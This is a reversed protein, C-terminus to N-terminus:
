GVRTYHQKVTEHLLEEISGRVVDLGFPKLILRSNEPLAGAAGPLNELPYGSTFIVPLGPLRARAVDCLDFGSMGPMVVDTLLLCAESNSRFYASASIPESFAM